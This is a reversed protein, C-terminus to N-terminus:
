NTWRMEQATAFYDAGDDLAALLGTWTAVLASGDPTKTFSVARTTM